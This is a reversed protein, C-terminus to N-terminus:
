AGPNSARKFDNIRRTIKRLDGWHRKEQGMRDRWLAHPLDQVGLCVTKHKNLGTFVRDCERLFLEDQEWGDLVDILKKDFVAGWGVLTIDGMYDIMRDAKLNNVIIGPEYLLAIEKAPVICDDDQVYIISKKATKIAEYRDYIHRGGKVIVEGFDKLEYLIPALNVDGKTL